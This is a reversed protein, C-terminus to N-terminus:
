VGWPPRRTEKNTIRAHCDICAVEVNMPDFFLTEDGKPPIKHHVQLREKGSCYTCYPHQKIVEARFRRWRTTNYLDKNFRRAKKYFEEKEKKSYRVPLHKSCYSGEPILVGCITCRKLRM